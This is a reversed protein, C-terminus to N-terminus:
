KRPSGFCYVNGGFDTAVLINGSSAVSSFM